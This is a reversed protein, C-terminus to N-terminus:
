PLHPPRDLRDVVSSEHQRAPASVVARLSFRPILSATTLVVAFCGWLLMAIDGELCADGHSSGNMMVLPLGTLLILVVLLAVLLTKPM